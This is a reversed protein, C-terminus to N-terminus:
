FLLLLLGIYRYHQTVVVFHLYMFISISIDQIKLAVANWICTCKGYLHVETLFLFVLFIANWELTSSLSAVGKLRSSM